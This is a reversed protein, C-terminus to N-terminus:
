YETEIKDVYQHEEYTWRKTHWADFVTLKRHAPTYVAYAKPPSGCLMFFVCGDGWKNVKEPTFDESIEGQNSIWIKKMERDINDKLERGYRLCLVQKIWADNFTKYNHYQANGRKVLKIQPNKAKIEEKWEMNIVEM